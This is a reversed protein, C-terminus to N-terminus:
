ATVNIYSGITRGSNDSLPTQQNNRPTNFLGQQAINSNNQSAQSRVAEVNQRASSANANAQRQQSELARAQDQARSAETKAKQVQTQLSQAKREAADASSQAQQLRQQQLSATALISSSTISNIAM